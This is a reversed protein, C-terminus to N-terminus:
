SSAGNKMLLLEYYQKDLEKIIEMNKSYTKMTIDKREWRSHCGEVDDGDICHIVVNREEAILDSRRSRPVLHSFSLRQSEGCEECVFNDIDNKRREQLKIYDSEIRTRKATFRSISSKVQKKEGHLRDLRLKNKEDCLWRTRNVILREGNCDCESCKAIEQKFGM